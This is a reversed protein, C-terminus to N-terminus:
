PVMPFYPGGASANVTEVYRLLEAFVEPEMYVIRRNLHGDVSFALQSGEVTVYLGDGLYAPGPLRDAAPIVNDAM